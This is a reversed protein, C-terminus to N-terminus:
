YHLFALFTKFDDKNLFKIKLSKFKQKGIQKLTQFM